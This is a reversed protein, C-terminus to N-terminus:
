RYSAIHAFIVAVMVLITYTWFSSKDELKFAKIAKILFFFAVAVFIATPIPGWVSGNPNIYV